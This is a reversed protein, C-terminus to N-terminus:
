KKGRRLCKFMSELDNEYLMQYFGSSFCRFNRNLHENREDTFRLEFIRDIICNTMYVLLMKQLQPDLDKVVNSMVIACSNNSCISQDETDKFETFQIDYYLSFIKLRKPMININKCININNEILIAHWAMSLAEVEAETLLCDCFISDVAHIVEHLFYQYIRQKPLYESQHSPSMIGLKITLSDHEHLGVYASDENFLYPFIIDYYVSGVKVKEPIGYSKFDIEDKKQKQKVM